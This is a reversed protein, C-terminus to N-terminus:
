HGGAGGHEAWADLAENFEDEDIEDELGEAKIWKRVAGRTYSTIGQDACWAFFDDLNREMATKTEVDGVSAEYDEDEDGNEQFDIWADRLGYYEGPLKVSGHFGMDGKTDVGKTSAVQDDCEVTIGELSAVLDPIGDLELETDINDLEDILEQAGNAIEVYDRKGRSNNVLNSFRTYSELVGGVADRHDWHVKFLPEGDIESNMFKDWAAVFAPWEELYPADASYKTEVAGASKWGLNEETEKDFANVYIDRGYKSRAAAIFAEADDQTDFDAYFTDNDGMEDAATGRFQGLMENMDDYAVDPDFDGNADGFQIEVWCAEGEAERKIEVRTASKANREDDVRDIIERIGFLDKPLVGTSGDEFVDVMAELSEAEANRMDALFQALAEVNEVPVAPDKAMEAVREEVDFFWDRLEQEAGKTEVRTASKTRTATVGLYARAAARREHADRPEHALAEELMELAAPDRDSDMEMEAAKRQLEAQAERLARTGLAELPSEVGSSFSEAARARYSKHTAM